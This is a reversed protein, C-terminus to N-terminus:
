PSSVPAPGAPVGEVAANLVLVKPDVSAVSRYRERFTELLADVKAAVPKTADYVRTASHARRRSQLTFAYTLEGPTHKPEDRKSEKSITEMATVLEGLEAPSVSWTATGLEELGRAEPAWRQKFVRSKVTPAGLSIEWEVKAQSGTQREFYFSLMVDWAPILEEGVAKGLGMGQALVATKGTAVARDCADAVRREFDDYAKPDSLAARVATVVHTNGNGLEIEREIRRHSESPPPPAALASAKFEDILAGFGGSAADALRGYVIEASSREVFFHGSRYVGCLDKGKRHIQLRDLAPDLAQKAAGAPVSTVVAVALAALSWLRM